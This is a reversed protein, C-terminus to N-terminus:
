WNGKEVRGQVEGGRQFVAYASRPAEEHFWVQWELRIRGEGGQTGWGGATSLVRSPKCSSTVVQGKDVAKSREEKFSHV